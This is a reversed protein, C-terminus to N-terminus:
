AQVLLGGAAMVMLSSLHVAASMGKSAHRTFDQIHVHSCSEKEGVGGGWLDLGELPLIRISFHELGKFSELHLSTSLATHDCGPNWRGADLPM